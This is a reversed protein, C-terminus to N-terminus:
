CRSSLKTKPRKRHPMVLYGNSEDNEILRLRLLAFLCYAFYQHDEDDISKKLKKRKYIKNCFSYYTKVQKKINYGAKGSHRIIAEGENHLDDIENPHDIQFKSILLGKYFTTITGYKGKDSIVKPKDM